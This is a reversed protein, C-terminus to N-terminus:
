ETELCYRISRELENAVSVAWIEVVTVRAGVSLRRDLASLPVGVPADTTSGLACCNGELCRVLRITAGVREGSTSKHGDKATEAGAETVSGVVLDAWSDSSATDDEDAIFYVRAGVRTKFIALPWGRLSYNTQPQRAFLIVRNM